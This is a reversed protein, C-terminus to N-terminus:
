EIKKHCENSNSIDIFRNLSIVWGAEIRICLPAWYSPFHRWLLRTKAALPIFVQRPANQRDTHTQLVAPKMCTIGGKCLPQSRQAEGTRGCFRGHRWQLCLPPRFTTKTAWPHCLPRESRTMTAMTATFNQAHEFCDCLPRRPPRDSVPRDFPCSSPLPMAMTASHIYLPRDNTAEYFHTATIFITYWNSRLRQRGQVVMTGRKASSYLGHALPTTPVM